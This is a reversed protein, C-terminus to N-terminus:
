GLPHPKAFHCACFHESSIERLEPVEKACLEEAIPCRTRFRCGSPPDIPSPVEGQLLIRSRSRQVKPDPVPIASLLSQTYPHCPKAYLLDVDATEVLNGLYMVAVTDSIHQVVGLDHAIFLYTLGFEDQLSDLLNLVQAQISVDLASVPEDCIILKPKLALARAIGIRQRQGGSFEHPYRNIHEPNLGVTELLEKVQTIRETKSGQHHIILPESILEGITMRPNLSAQPDQFVIQAERRFNFLDRGKLTAVDHGEFDITGSTPNILRIVCRGITTKGSGSEGVLGMTKGREISFSVDNIASVHQAGFRRFLGKSVAFDKHLHSVNLLIDSM